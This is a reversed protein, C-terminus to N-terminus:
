FDSWESAAWVVGRVVGFLLALGGISAVGGWWHGSARSMAWVVGGLIGVGCGLLVCSCVRGIVLKWRSMHRRGEAEDFAVCYARAVQEALNKRGASM